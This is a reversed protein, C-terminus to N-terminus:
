MLNCAKYPVVIKIIYILFPLANKVKIAIDAFLRVASKTNSLVFCEQHHYFSYCTIPAVHHYSFSCVYGLWSTNTMYTIHQNTIVSTTTLLRCISHPKLCNRKNDGGRGGDTDQPKALKVKTADM